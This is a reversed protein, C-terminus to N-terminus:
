RRRLSGLRIREPSGAPLKQILEDVGRLASYPAVNEGMKRSAATRPSIELPNLQYADRENFGLSKLADDSATYMEMANKNGLDQAVHTGEHLLSDEITKADMGPRMRVPTQEPFAGASRKGVDTFAKGTPHQIQKLKSLKDIGMHAAIRPYREAFLTAATEANPGFQKMKTLFDQTGQMRRAIDPVGAKMYRTMAVAPAMLESTAPDFFYESIDHEETGERRRKIGEAFRSKEDGFAREWLSPQKKSSIVPM